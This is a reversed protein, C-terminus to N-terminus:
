CGLSTSRVECMFRGDEEACASYLDCDDEPPSPCDSRGFCEHEMTQCHFSPELVPDANRGSHEPMNLPSICLGTGCDADTRCTAPMCSGLITERRTANQIVRDCVCVFGPGCDDDAACSARCRHAILGDYEDSRETRLCYANQGCDADRTCENVFTCDPPSCGGMEVGANGALGAILEDRVPLPCARAVPRHVFGQSCEVLDDSWTSPTSCVGVVSRGGADGGIGAGGGDGGEGAGGAGGTGGTGGGADGGLGAEGDTGSAGGEGAGGSGTGGSGGRAVSGGSNSTAGSRGGTVESEDTRESKGACSLALALTGGLVALGFAPEITGRGRM